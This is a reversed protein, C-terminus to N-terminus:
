FQVALDLRLILRFRRRGVPFEDLLIPRELLRRLLQAVQLIPQIFVMCHGVRQEGGTMADDLVFTHRRTAMLTQPQGTIEELTDDLQCAGAVRRREMHHEANEVDVEAAGLATVLQGDGYRRKIATIGTELRGGAHKDADARQPQRKIRVQTERRQDSRQPPHELLIIPILAERQTLQIAREAQPARLARLQEVQRHGVLAIIMVQAEILRLRLHDHSRVPMLLVRQRDMDTFVFEVFVDPNMEKVVLGIEAAPFDPLDAKPQLMHKLLHQFIGLQRHRSQREHRFRFDALELGPVGGVYRKRRRRHDMSLDFRLCRARRIGNGDLLVSVAQGIRLQVGAGVDHRMSQHGHADLRVLAYRDTGLAAEVANDPHQPNELRTRTIHRHVGGIRHLTQAVDEVLGRRLDHQDVISRRVQQRLGRHRLKIETVQVGHGLRLKGIGIGCPTM